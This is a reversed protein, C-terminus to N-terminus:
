KVTASLGTPPAPLPGSNYCLAADFLLIGNSDTATTRYCTQAPILYALGAFGSINGGSVDPGIAPWPMSGWWYPKSPLYFSPPLNRSTPVANGNIYSVGSSPVESANWQASANVTDYNGWRFLTNRTIADNQVGANLNTGCESGAWGIEYITHDCTSSSISTPPSSQYSTHYGATGLVNGIVNYGRCYALLVVPVTNLSTTTTGNLGAGLLLNRFFTGTSSSGWEDDCELSNFQNGEFLNMANGSNHSASVALLWSLSPTYYSDIAYNYGVAVGMGQGFMVPSAVHQFINNEVLDDSSETVEVGYSQSAANQTGYFYSDRVVDQNSLYLWVHNRNANLSKVNKVWCQTCSYFYLGSKVSTGSGSHDLTMNEIGIGNIMPTWWAGPSQSSRFNTAYVGPSIAFTNGSIGIVTVIQEQSHTVGGIVRGNANGAGEQQCAPNTDCNYIGGTDSTDNAQDLIIVQGVTPLGSSATLTIQTSGQAYGGTWNAAQSGGPQVAASGNYFATAPMVCVDGGQGGCNDGGTFQLITQTPGAGRLTVKNHGNFNIGSAITYTGANLYVVQNAPCNAIASNIQASTAGPNLTACITARNQIGGPIGANSWDIARSANLIGSWQQAQIAAPFLFLAVFGYLWFSQRRWTM